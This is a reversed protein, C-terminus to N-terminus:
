SKKAKRTKKKSKKAKKSKKNKKPKKKNKIAKKRAKNGKKTKTQKSKGSSSDKKATVSEPEEDIETVVETEVGLEDQLTDPFIGLRQKRFRAIWYKVQGASLGSQEAAQTQTSGENIALLALARQNHPAESTSIQKCIAQEQSTLLDCESAVQENKQQITM